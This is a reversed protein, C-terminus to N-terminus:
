PSVERARKEATKAVARLLSATFGRPLTPQNRHDYLSTGAPVHLRKASVKARLGRVGLVM